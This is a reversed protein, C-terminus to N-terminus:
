ILKCYIPYEDANNPVVFNDFCAYQVCRCILRMKTDSKIDTKDNQDDARGDTLTYLQLYKNGAWWQARKDTAHLTITASYPFLVRPFPSGGFYYYVMFTIDDEGFYYVTYSKTKAFERHAVAVDDMHTKLRLRDRLERILHASISM